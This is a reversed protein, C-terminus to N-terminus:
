SPHLWYKLTLRNPIIFLHDHNYFFMRTHFAPDSTYSSYFEGGFMMVIAIYMLLLGIVPVIIASLYPGILVLLEDMPKHLTRSVMWAIVSGLWVSSAGISVGLVYDLPQEYFSYDPLLYRVLAISFILSLAASTIAIRSFRDTLPTLQIEVPGATLQLLLQLTTFLMFQVIMSVVVAFLTAGLVLSVISLRIAEALTAHVVM